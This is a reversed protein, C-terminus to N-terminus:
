RYTCYLPSVQKNADTAKSTVIERLKVINPHSLNKLIKIERCLFKSRVIFNNAVQSVFDDIFRIATIPFGEKENDM